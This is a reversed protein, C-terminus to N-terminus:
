EANLQELILCIINAIAGEIVAPDMCVPQSDDVEALEDVILQAQLAQIKATSGQCLFNAALEEYGDTTCTVTAGLNDAVACLLQLLLYRQM